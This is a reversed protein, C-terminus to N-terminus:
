SHFLLVQISKWQDDTPPYILLTEVLALVHTVVCDASSEIIRDNARRCLHLGRLDMVLCATARIVTIALQISHIFGTHIKM